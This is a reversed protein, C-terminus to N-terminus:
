IDVSSPETPCLPNIVSINLGSFYSIAKVQPGKGIIFFTNSIQWPLIGRYIDISFRIAQPIPAQKPHVIFVVEPIFLTHLSPGTKRPSSTTKLSQVFTFIQPTSNLFGTIAAEPVKPNPLSYASYKGRDFSPPIHVLPNVKCLFSPFLPILIYSVVPPSKFLIPKCFGPISSNIFSSSGKISLCSVTIKALTPPLM